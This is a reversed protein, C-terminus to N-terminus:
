ARTRPMARCATGESIQRWIKQTMPPTVTPTEAHSRSAAGTSMPAGAWRSTRLSPWEGGHRGARTLPIGVVPRTLRGHSPVLDPRPKRRGRSRGPQRLDPRRLESRRAQGLPLCAGACTPPIRGLPPSHSQGPPTTSVLAGDNGNDDGRFAMKGNLALPSARVRAAPALDQAFEGIIVMGCGGHTRDEAAAVGGRMAQDSRPDAAGRDGERLPTTWSKEAARGASQM